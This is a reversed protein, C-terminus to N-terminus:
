SGAPAADVYAGNLVTEYPFSWSLEFVRRRAMGTRRWTPTRLTDGAAGLGRMVPQGWSLGGDDSWRLSVQPELPSGGFFSFPAGSPSTFGVTSGDADEFQFAVSPNPAQGLSPTTGTEMDAIFSGYSVRRADERLHPFSQIRPIAAGADTFAQPDLAYLAGTQWDQCVTRGYAQACSGARHRHLAGTGDLWARQHWLGTAADYVWTEDASPFSLVYFVHGQQQYTFGIADSITGYTSLRAELAHNSIRKAQYQAAEVVLAQGQRDQALWYISLDQKAISYKAVAGHEVFVGPMRQFPFDAAGSDIWVESSLTGILWPELHQCIVGQLPDAAGTKAAIWLPNFAVGPAWTSPSVYFQATGPRNFLFYTDVFDVRDAGYFAPDSIAGNWSRGSLTVSYGAPSGDVLVLVVGNDAMSVPTVPLAESYTLTGLLNHAFTPDVYYLSSGVVAYLDGSSAVYLGRGAGPTPSALLTLGPTPYYSFPFPADPPNREPYLNICRQAEASLSRAQYAGATLAVRM